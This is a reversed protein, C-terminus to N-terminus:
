GTAEAFNRRLDVMRVIMSRRPDFPLDAFGWKLAAYATMLRIPSSASVSPPAHPLEAETLCFDLSSRCIM